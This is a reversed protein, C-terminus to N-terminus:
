LVEEELKNAGTKERNSLYVGVTSHLLYLVHAKAAPYKGEHLSQEKGGEADKRKDEQQSANGSNAAALSEKERDVAM